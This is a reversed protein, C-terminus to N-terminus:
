RGTAKQQQVRAMELGTRAAAYGPDLRLAASYQTIAEAFRGSSALLSGVTYYATPDDPKLGAEARFQVLAEEMRGRSVLAFGLSRRADPNGPEVQVAEYFQALAEDQRGLAALVRALDYHGSASDPRLAAATSFERLAENLRAESALLEGYGMHAGASAPELSLSLLYERESEVLNGTLKLVAALNTHAARFDPKIRLAEQIHPIAEQIRRHVLYYIALNNHAVANNTTAAIAHSYLTESNQWYASQVWTLVFCASCAAAAGSVIVPRARAHATLFDAASWALMIAIGVMPVYTYRDASAQEGVQVLGIVPVLTGLYWLWGVALYPQSRRLRIALATVCTLVAGSVAVQWAPLHSPYPYLVALNAPWFMRLLYAAYVVVANAVRMGFPTAGLSQVAHGAQQALFTVIAGALTVVFFPIKERVVVSSPRRLPWVDLLLLVFPFTVIMPKALLGLCFAALVLLYRTAGPREIYRAYFFLALFWFDACLVDKREAVWAVSEVHLPHLAFVFAVLASPWRVATLRELATFLLLAAAAHLVVNTAHHWGSQMGFMQCDAMHSVWTLPSWNAANFSTFAWVLGDWTLGNRVHPNSTVYDLDDYNTFDFHITRSYAALTLLV